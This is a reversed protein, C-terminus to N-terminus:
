SSDVGGQKKKSIGLWYLWAAALILMLGLPAMWRTGAGGTQPLEYGTTNTITVSRELDEGMAQGAATQQLNVAILEPYTYTTHFGALHDEVVYYEYLGAKTAYPLGTWKIVWGGTIEFATPTVDDGSTTGTSDKGNLTVPGRNTVTGDPAKQYLTLTVPVDNPIEMGTPLDWVKTATVDVTTDINYNKVTLTYVGNKYNDSDISVEQVIPDKLKVYDGNPAATEEIVYLFKRTQPDFKMKTYDAYGDTGTTITTVYYVTHSVGNEDKYTLIKGSGEGFTSYIDFPVGSLNANTKGDIKHIRLTFVNSYSNTINVTGASGGKTVSFTATDDVTTDTTITDSRVVSGVTCGTGDGSATVTADLYGSHQFNHEEFTYSDQELSITWTYGLGTGTPSGKIITPGDDQTATETGLTLIYMQDGNADKVAIYYNDQWSDSQSLEAIQTATIGEFTKNVTVTNDEPKNKVLYVEKIGDDQNDYLTTATGVLNGYSNLEQITVTVRDDTKTVVVQWQTDVSQYGDPARAERLIYTGPALASFHASGNEITTVNKSYVDDGSVVNGDADETMTLTFVAGGIKNSEDNEAVKSVSFMGTGTPTYFNAFIISKVQGGVIGKENANNVQDNFLDVVGILQNKVTTQDSEYTIIPDIDPDDEFSATTSYEYVVTESADNYHVSILSFCEYGNLTQGTEEIAYSQGLVSQLTWHYINSSDSEWKHNEYVGTQSGSASLTTYDDRYLNTATTITGTDADTSTITRASLLYLPFTMKDIAAQAGLWTVGDEDTYGNRTLGSFTKYIEVPHTNAVLVGDMHYADDDTTEIKLGYWKLLYNAPLIDSQDLVAGDLTIEKGSNTPTGRIYSFVDSELLTENYNPADDYYANGSTNWKKTADIVIYPTTISPDYVAQIMPELYKEHVEVDIGTRKYMDPSSMQDINYLHGIAVIETYHSPSTDVSTKGEEGYLLTDGHNVYFYIVNSLLQWKGVLTTGPWVTQWNGAADMIHINGDDGLYVETNEPFYCETGDTNNAVWYLFQHEAGAPLYNANNPDNNLADNHASYYSVETGNGSLTNRIFKGAANRGEMSYLNSTTTTIDQSTTGSSITPIGTVWDTTPLALNYYLIPETTRYILYVHVDHTSNRSLVQNAQNQEIYAPLLLQYSSDVINGIAAVPDSTWGDYMAEVYTYGEIDPALGSFLYYSGDAVFADMDETLTIDKQYVALDEGNISGEKLHVTITYGSFNVKFSSSPPAETCLWFQCSDANEKYTWFDYSGDNLNIFGTGNSTTQASLSVTGNDNRTVTIAQPTDTLTLSGSGLVTNGDEDVYNETLLNFYKKETGDMTSIYYKGNASDYEEFLWIAAQIDEGEDVADEYYDSGNMTTITVNAAGLGPVGNVNDVTKTALAKHFGTSSITGPTILAYSQGVLDVVANETGVKRWLTLFGGPDTVQDYGKFGHPSTHGNYENLFYGNYGFQYKYAGEVEVTNVTFVTASDASDTVSTYGNNAMVIYKGNSHLKYTNESIQVFTWPSGEGGIICDLANNTNTTTNGVGNTGHQCFIYYTGALNNAETDTVQMYGEVTAPVEVVSFVSFGETDFTLVTQMTETGDEATEYEYYYFVGSLEVPAGDVFHFVKVANGGFADGPLTMSVSASEGVSLYEGEADYFSIDLLTMDLVEETVLENVQSTLAEYQEDDEAVATITLVADEPVATTLADLAVQAQLGDEGEFTHEQTDDPETPLLAYGLVSVDQAEMTVREVRGEWDGALFCVMEPETETAATMEELIGVADCVGDENTDLFILDGPVPTYAGTERYIEMENLVNLLNQCDQDAPIGEVDAYHLCFSVFMASWDAYPAGYWQGYRTYHYVTGNEDTIYNTQSETYGLQSVAVALIDESWDGTLTMASLSAEWIEQTELDAEPDAESAETEETTEPETVPYCAEDHTHEELGCVLERAVTEASVTAGTTEETTETTEVITEETPETVEELDCIQKSEWCDQGHSHGETEELGCVLGTEYLYCTAQHEHEEECILTQIIGSCRDDHNHAEIEESGCILNKEYCAETHTHTEPETVVAYCEDTHTHETLGCITGSEMTIAPLILAYTTCFVVVMAMARVVRQWNKKRRYARYARQLLKILDM